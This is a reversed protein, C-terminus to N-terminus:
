TLYTVKNVPVEKLDNGVKVIAVPYAVIGGPHGGILPSEGIPQSYQFVGILEGEVTEKKIRVQVKSM